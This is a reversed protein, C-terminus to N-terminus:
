ITEICFPKNRSVLEDRIHKVVAKAKDRVLSDDLPAFLESLTSYCLSKDKPSKAQASQM